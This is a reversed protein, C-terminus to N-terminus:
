LLIAVEIGLIHVYAFKRFYRLNRFILTGFDGEERSRCDSGKSEGHVNEMKIINFKYFM